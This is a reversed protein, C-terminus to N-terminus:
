NSYVFTENDVGFEVVTKDVPEHCRLKTSAENHARQNHVTSFQMEFRKRVVPLILLGNAAELSPDGRSDVKLCQKTFHCDIGQPLM